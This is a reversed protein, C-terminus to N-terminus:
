EEGFLDTDSLQEMKYAAKRSAMFPIIVAVFCENCVEYIISTMVAKSKPNSPKTDMTHMEVCTFVKMNDDIKWEVGDNHRGCLCCSIPEGM